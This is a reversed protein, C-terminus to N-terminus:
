PKDKEAANQPQTAQNVAEAFIASVDVAVVEDLNGDEIEALLLLDQILSQMRDIQSRIRTYSRRLSDQDLTQSQSALEFYGRIITLPTKLEHSADAIFDKMRVHNRKEQAVADKLSEVM